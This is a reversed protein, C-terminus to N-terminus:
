GSAAFEREDDDTCLTKPPPWEDPAWWSKGQAAWSEMLRWPGDPHHYDRWRYWQPTGPRTEWQKVPAPDKGAFREWRQERIYTTLDCIKRNNARCDALYPVIGAACANKDTEKLGVFAAEAAVSSLVHMPPWARKVDSFARACQTSETNVSDTNLLNKIPGPHSQRLRRAAGPPGTPPSGYGTAEPNDDAGDGEGDDDASEGPGAGSSVLLLASRAEEESLEPGPEDRVEYIVYVRGTQESRTIEARMWGFRVANRLMRRLGDRGVGFRRMLAPRRVEWDNPRSLFWAILGIEDLSLREDNFLENGITTFNATHRRRIIM